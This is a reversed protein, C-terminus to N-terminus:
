DVLRDLLRNLFRDTDLLVDPHGDIDVCSRKVEMMATSPKWRRDGGSDQSASVYTEKDIHTRQNPTTIRSCTVPEPIPFSNQRKEKVGKPRRSPLPGWQMSSSHWTLRRCWMSSGAADVPELMEVSLINVVRPLIGAIMLGVKRVECPQVATDISVLLASALNVPGIV